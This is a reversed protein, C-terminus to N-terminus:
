KRRRARIAIVVGAVGAAVLSLTSPEPVPIANTAFAPGAASTFMAVAGALRLLRGTVILNFAAM